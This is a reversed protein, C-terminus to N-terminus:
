QKKYLEINVNSGEVGKECDIVGYSFVAMDFHNGSNNCLASGIYNGIVKVNGADQLFVGHLKEYNAKLQEKDTALYMDNGDTSICVGCKLLNILAQSSCSHGSEEEKDKYFTDNFSVINITRFDDACKLFANLVDSTVNVKKSKLFDLIEINNNKLLKIVHGDNDNKCCDFGYTHFCFLANICMLSGTYVRNM